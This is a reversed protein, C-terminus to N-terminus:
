KCTNFTFLVIFCVAPTVRYSECKPIVDVSDFFPYPCFYSVLQQFIQSWSILKLTIGPYSIKLQETATIPKFLDPQQIIQYM